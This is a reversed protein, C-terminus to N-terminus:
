PISFSWARHMCICATTLGAAMCNTVLYQAIWDTRIRVTCVCSIPPFLRIRNGCLEYQTVAEKGHEYDVCQRPRNLFDASLPLSVTGKRPVTEESIERELLAEYEKRVTQHGAFQRQMAVFTEDTKAALLVGSTDQDLRHVVKYGIIDQANPLKRKGPVSLLGAPKNVAILWADEYLPSSNFSQLISSNSNSESMMGDAHYEESKVIREECGELWWIVPQCRSQCPEYFRGHHRVEGKPSDGYWFEALANVRMGHRNAYNLLKPACCEGTGSPPVSQRLDNRKAYEGFVQLVDSTEGQPNTLIFQSFLWRQLAQSREKREARVADLYRREDGKVNVGRYREVEKNLKTIIAEHTKFYGDPQLYDFIAPM